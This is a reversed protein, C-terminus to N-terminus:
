GFVCAQDVQEQRLNKVDGLKTDLLLAGELNANDLNAGKLDAKYLDANKLNAGVLNAGNLKARFLNAEKLHTGQLNADQLDANALNAGHLNAGQLDISYLNKGAFNVGVLDADRLYIRPLDVNNRLGVYSLARPIQKGPQGNIARESVFFALVVVAAFFAAFQHSRDLIQIYTKSKRWNEKIRIPAPLEARLTNRAYRQFITAVLVAVTLYAIHWRTGISDNVRVYWLWFIATTFPVTWWALLISIGSQLRSFLTRNERLILFHSRVLKNLLWPYAKQDIPKGDLFISPLESLEKWINQMYLHFYLFMALLIPPAVFFFGAIPIATQIIPLPSSASNTILKADETSFITLAAYACGLLMAIFLKRANKSTEEVTKLSEQWEVHKPFKAGTVDAQTFQRAHLGSTELFVVDRLIAGRFNSGTLDKGHLDARELNAGELNAGLLNAGTLDAGCLNAARLNAGSLDPQVDPNEQRWQNWAEVGQALIALHKENAM